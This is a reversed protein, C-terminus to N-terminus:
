ALRAPSIERLQATMAAEAQRQCTPMEQATGLKCHGSSRVRDGKFKAELFTPVTRKWVEWSQGGLYPLEHKNLTPKISSKNNNSITVTLLSGIM